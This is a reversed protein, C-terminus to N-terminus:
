RLQKLYRVSQVVGGGFFVVLVALVSWAYGDLSIGPIFYFLVAAAMVAIGSVLMRSAFHHNVAYWIDPDELTAKVRFGYLGNPKIKNQLLPIALGVLLAGFVLYMVLLTTMRYLIARTISNTPFSEKCGPWDRRSGISCPQPHSKAAWYEHELASDLAQM